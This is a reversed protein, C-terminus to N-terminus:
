RRRSGAHGRRALAPLRQRRQQQPAAPLVCLPTARPGPVPTRRERRVRTCRGRGRAPQRGASASHQKAARSSGGPHMSSPSDIGSHRYSSLSDNHRLAVQGTGEEDGDVETM